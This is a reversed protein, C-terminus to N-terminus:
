QRIGALEGSRVSNQTPFTENGHISHTSSLLDPSACRSGIHIAHQCNMEVTTKIMANLSESADGYKKLFNLRIFNIELKRALITYVQVRNVM